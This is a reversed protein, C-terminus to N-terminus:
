VYLFDGGGVSIIVVLGVGPMIDSRDGRGKRLLTVGVVVGPIIDSWGGGGEPNIILVDTRM